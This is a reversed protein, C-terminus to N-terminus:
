RRTSNRSDNSSIVSPFYIEGQRLNPALCNAGSATLHEIIQQKVTDRGGEKRLHM